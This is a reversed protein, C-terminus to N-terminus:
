LGHEAGREERILNAIQEFFTALDLLEESECTVTISIM